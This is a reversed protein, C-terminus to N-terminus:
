SRRSNQSEGSETRGTDGSRCKYRPETGEYEYNTGRDAYNLTVAKQGFDSERGSTSWPWGNGSVEGSNYFNDLNVFQRAIAHFNPTIAEGFETLSPDGNGKGLDGLVQDYTRNEKIIYIVHKIHRRLEAMVQQDHPDAKAALNNNAAVIRTMSRLTSADPIPITLLSGKELQLIYENQAEGLLAPGPQAEGEKRKRLGYDRNPGPMTKANAVYLYRNDASVSISNPYWATPLLGIVESRGGLRIVSVSNSGGNTVYLTKEDPSLALSNPGSGTYRNLQPMLWRPATTVINELVRNSRTDIISVTDSNDQAVFLLSGNRNAIMKNPNGPVRIRAAIKPTASFDIRVVERDRLSSAFVTSTNTMQLWFPYEGGAVSHDRPDNKGPRLDLEFRVRHDLLDVFSLSDNYVDAVVATRGEPSIAVGGSALPNGTPHFGLGSKHGLSVPEGEEQWGGAKLGFTHLNDDKGGSVYFRRGDPSFAIGAFTNPVKLVQIQKPFGSSIDYVFVYEESASGISKGSTDNIRNYGSTLLLLTKADPSLVTTMAQGAVFAPFDPLGPNLSQIKSGPVALPTIRKGTPLLTGAGDQDERFGQTVTASFLVFVAGLVGKVRKFKASM